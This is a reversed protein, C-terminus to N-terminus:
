QAPLMLCLVHILYVLLGELRVLGHSISSFRAHLSYVASPLECRPHSASYAACGSGCGETGSCYTWANCGPTAFCLSGCQEPQQLPAPPHHGQYRLSSVDLVLVEGRVNWPKLDYILPSQALSRGLAFLFVFVRLGMATPPV